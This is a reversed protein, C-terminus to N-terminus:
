APPSASGSSGVIAVFEGKRIQFSIHPRRGGRHHRGNHYYKCVDQFEILANM